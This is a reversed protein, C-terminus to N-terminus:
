KTERQKGWEAYRYIDKILDNMLDRYGIKIKKKKLVLDSFEIIKPVQIGMKKLKRTEKLVQYKSQEMVLKGEYLVLMNDVVPLLFDLDSSIVIIMKQYRNKLMRILKTLKKQEYPDLGLTPEDLILIKPNCILAKALALKRQEGTSLTEPSRYLFDHSLEVMKLADAVRKELEAERFHQEKIKRSLEEYVTKKGFDLEVQESVYGIKKKIQYYGDCDTNPRILVDEYYIEGLQLPLLGGIIKGLYTKGSGSPGIIGYVKDSYFKMSIDDLRVKDDKYSIHELKIEM